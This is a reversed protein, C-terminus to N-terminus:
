LILYPWEGQTAANYLLPWGTAHDIEYSTGAFDADPDAKMSQVLIFTVCSWYTGGRRDM